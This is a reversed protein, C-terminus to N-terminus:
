EVLSAQLVKKMEEGSTLPLDFCFAPELKQVDEKTVGVQTLNSELGIRELFKVLAAALSQAKEETSGVAGFLEAVQAFREPQKRWQLQAYAPYVVALTLGHPLNTKSSGLIEGLPHPAGAGGNALSIGGLTDAKALQCRGHLDAGNDVVSPLHDIVLKMAELAMGDVFPSPRTGTFSEFAHSFADFGTMATMRPPLTLMLEPDILAECPFFEPHFLTLKAHQELDTIVAAQTVQSGTGSTTPVAILPVVKAPLPNVDGFPSDYTAFWHAWDLSETNITASIIKATDISSGGGIALVVDCNNGIAVQRGLEVVTTPPNPVVGDFHTVEIGQESLLTFIRDYAPKVADFIPESVVLCRTGYQAILQGIKQIEGAGFTLKTPQYHQFQTM